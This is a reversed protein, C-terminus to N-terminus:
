SEEEHALRYALNRPAGEDTTLVRVIERASMGQQRLARVRDRLGAESPEAETAGEV